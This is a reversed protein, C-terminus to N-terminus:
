GREPWQVVEKVLETPFATEKSYEDKVVVFGPEYRLSKTYSGGARGKHMFKRETGDKLKVIINSM